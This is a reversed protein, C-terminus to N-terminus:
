LTRGHPRPFPSDIHLATSTAVAEVNKVQERPGVQEATSYNRQM